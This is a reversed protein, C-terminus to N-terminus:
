RVVMLLTILLAAVAYVWVPIDNSEDDLPNTRSRFDSRYSNSMILEKENSLRIGISRGIINKAMTYEDLIWLEKTGNQILAL